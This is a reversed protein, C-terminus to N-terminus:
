ANKNSKNFVVKQVGETMQFAFEAPNASATPHLQGAMAEFDVIRHVRQDKHPIATIKQSTFSGTNYDRLRKSYDNWTIQDPDKEPIDLGFHLLEPKEHIELQELEGEFLCIAITKSLKEFRLRKLKKSKAYGNVIFDPWGSVVESRLLVGSVTTQPILTGVENWLRLDHAQALNTVRGVSLVGDLLAQTWAPDVSFFRLSEDPLYSEDSVLYNFPLHKLLGLDTFWKQLESAMTTEAVRNTNQLAPLHHRDFDKHFASKKQLKWLHLKEAIGKRNLTLLRGLEWAAAYSVDFVGKGKVVNLLTDASIVPRYIAPKKPTFPVLPGRYYAASTVGTRGRYELANKGAALQQNIAQIEPTSGTIAPRQLVSPTQNLNTLLGSFSHERAICSFSWNYLSILQYQTAADASSPAALKDNIYCKELSVLHVHTREGRKPLRNGIIVAREPLEAVPTSAATTKRVHASLKLSKVSPKLLDIQAKPVQIVKLLDSDKQHVESVSFDYPKYINGKLSRDGKLDSWKKVLVKPAEAETFVLLALWPTDTDQVQIEREWPFTSRNLVIHPFTNSYEGLNNKPPFTAHVMTPPITTREGLVAFKQKKAPIRSDATATGSINLSQNIAIEYNGSVLGPKHNEIFQIKNMM